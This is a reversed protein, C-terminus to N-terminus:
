GISTKNLASYTPSEVGRIKDMARALSPTPQMTSGREMLPNISVPNQPPEQIQRISSQKEFQEPRRPPLPAPDPQAAPAQLHRMREFVERTNVGPTVPHQESASASPPSILPFAMSRMPTETQAAAAIKTKNQEAIFAAQKSKQEAMYNAYKTIDMVNAQHYGRGPTQGLIAQAEPEFRNHYMDPYRKHVYEGKARALATVQEEPTKGVSAIAEPRTLIKKLNNRFQIGGGWISEQVRPDETAYGLQAATKIFPEYHTKALFTHQAKAFAEPQASAIDSYIKNFASSGPRTRGFSGAFPKGEESKLFEAMTGKKSSLQHQGYSVGGPDRKGTSITEVGFKAESGYKGTEWQGTIAGIDSRTEPIFVPPAVEVSASMDKKKKRGRGGDGAETKTLFTNRDINNKEMDQYISQIKEHNPDLVQIENTKKNWKIAGAAQAEEFGKYTDKMIRERDYGFFKAEPHKSNVENYYKDADFKFTDLTKKSKDPKEVKATEGGPAARQQGEPYAPQVDNTTLTPRAVSAQQSPQVVATQGKTAAHDVPSSSGQIWALQDANALGKGLEVAKMTGASPEGGEVVGWREGNYNNINISRVRAPQGAFQELILVEGNKNPATLAIGTHYHSRGDPMDKAMKGGTGDNYSMTAIVSGPAISGDKVKWSSAAGLGSFHKSLSVCQENNGFFGGSKSSVSSVGTGSSGPDGPSTIASNISKLFGMRTASDGVKDLPKEFDYVFGRVAEREDTFSRSLYTKMEGETMAYDIQGKWNSQWDSGVFKKMSSFRGAGNWGKDHHQFLGGSPGGRDNDNYAGPRFRSEGQINALIGMAHVHDVGHKTRLYNYIDKALVPNSVNGSRGSRRGSGMREAEDISGAGQSLGYNIDEQKQRSMKSIAERFGGVDPLGKQYYKPFLEAFEVPTLSTLFSAAGIKSVAEVRQQPTLKKLQRFAEKSSKGTNFAM